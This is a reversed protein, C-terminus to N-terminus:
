VTQEKQLMATSEARHRNESKPTSLNRPGTHIHTVWIEFYVFAFIIHVTLPQTSPRLNFPLMSSPECIVAGVCCGAKQMAPQSGAFTM